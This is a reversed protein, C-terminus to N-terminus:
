AAAIMEEGGQVEKVLNAVLRLHVEYPQKSYTRGHNIRQHHLDQSARPPQVHNELGTIYKKECYNSSLM